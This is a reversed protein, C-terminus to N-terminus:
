KWFTPVGKQIIEETLEDMNNIKSVTALAYAGHHSRVILPQAEYDSICGLGLNGRM